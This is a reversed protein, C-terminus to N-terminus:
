CRSSAVYGRRFMSAEIRGLKKGIMRQAILPQTGPGLTVAMVHPVRVMSHDEGNLLTLNAGIPLLAIKGSRCHMVKSAPMLSHNAGNM